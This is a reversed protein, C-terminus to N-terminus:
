VTRELAGQDNYYYRYGHDGKYEGTEKDEQSPDYLEPSVEKTKQGNADYTIRTVAEREDELKTSTKIINGNLDYEYNTKIGKPSTVSKQWGIENYDFVTILKHAADIGTEIVEKTFGYEDYTYETVKGAPDTVKKLLGGSYGFQKCEQPTYYAYTTIAFNEENEGTFEVKEDEEANKLYQAMKVLNKKDADYIYFTYKYKEDKEMILNNKEDYEMERYSKDPNIIKIINGRDDRIYQTMNGNRDISSQVEGYKNIGGVDSYRTITDRNGADTTKIIYMSPDYEHTTSRNKSDKITTKRVANNYTYTDVNGFANTVKWVKHKNEVSDHYYEISEITKEYGDKIASLYNYSDYEYTVYNGEPEIVKSLLKKDNYQYEVKRGMPDTVFQVMGDKNHEITLERSGSIVKEVNGSDDVEIKLTNDNRDKMYTLYGKSNFIYRYQDKTTIVYTGDEKTLTNRSDNATYTGDANLSFTEVSGNPYRVM